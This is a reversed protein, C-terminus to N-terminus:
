NTCNTHTIDCNIQRMVVTRYWMNCNPVFVTGPLWHENTCLLVVWNTYNQNEMSHNRWRCAPLRCWTPRTKHTVFQKGHIEESWGYPFFCCHLCVMCVTYHEGIFRGKDNLGSLPCIKRHCLTNINLNHILVTYCDAESGEGGAWTVGANQELDRNVRPLRPCMIQLSIFM